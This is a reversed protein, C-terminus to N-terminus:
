IARVQDWSGSIPIAGPRQTARSACIGDLAAAGLEVSADHRAVAVVDDFSLAGVGVTVTAPHGAPAPPLQTQTMGGNSRTGAPGAREGAAITDRM